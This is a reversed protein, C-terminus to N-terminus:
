DTMLGSQLLGNKSLDAFVLSIHVFCGNCSAVMIWDHWVLWLLMLSPRSLVWLLFILRGAKIWASFNASCLFKHLSIKEDFLSFSIFAAGDKFVM